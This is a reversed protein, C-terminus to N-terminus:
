TLATPLPLHHFTLMKIDVDAYGDDGNVGPARPQRAARGSGEGGPTFGGWALAGRWRVRM